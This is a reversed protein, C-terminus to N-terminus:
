QLIVGMFHVDVRRDLAKNEETAVISQAELAGKGIVKIATHPIDTQLEIYDAVVQARQLSLKENYSAEGTHDTYGIVEIDMTNQVKGRYKAIREDIIAKGDNSLESEDYAFLVIGSLSIYEDITTTLSIATPKSVVEETVTVVQEPAVIVEEVSPSQQCKVAIILLLLIFAIWIFIKRM